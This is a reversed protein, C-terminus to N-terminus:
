LVWNLLYVACFKSLLLHCFVYNKYWRGPNHLRLRSTPLVKLKLPRFLNRRRRASRKSGLQSQKHWLRAYADCKAIKWVQDQETTSTPNPPRPLASYPARQHRWWTWGVTILGKWWAYSPSIRVVRLYTGSLIAQSDKCFICSPIPLTPGIPCLSGNSMSMERFTHRYAKQKSALVILV